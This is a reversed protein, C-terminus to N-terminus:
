FALDSYVVIQVTAGSPFWFYPVSQVQNQARMRDGLVQSVGNAVGSVGAALPNSSGNSSTIVSRSGQVVLSETSNAIEGMAREVGPAVAASFDQWFRNDELKQSEAKLPSGDHSIIQMAGPPIPYSGDESLIRTVDMFFVGAGSANTIEAIVRTGSPLIEEGQTNLFPENLTLLYKRNPAPGEITWAIGNKLEATGVSGIDLTANAHHYNQAVVEKRPQYPSPTNQAVDRSGENNITLSPSGDLKVATPISGEISSNEREQASYSVYTTDGLPALYHGSNAQALWTEMPDPPPEKKVMVQPKPQPRPKVVRPTRAVPLTPAQRVEVPKPQPPVPVPVPKSKPKPSSSSVQKVPIVELEQKSLANKLALAQNKRREEELSQRYLEEQKTQKSEETKKDPPPSGTFANIIGWLIPVGIAAVAIIQVLPKKYYPITELEDTKLTVMKTLLREEPSSVQSPEDEFLMQEAEEISISEIMM